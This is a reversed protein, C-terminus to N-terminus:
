IVIQFVIPGNHTFQKPGSDGYNYNFELLRPTSLQVHLQRKALM